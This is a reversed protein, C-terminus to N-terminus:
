HEDDVVDEVVGAIAHGSKPGPRYPKALSQSRCQERGEGDEHGILGVIVGDHEIGVHRLMMM